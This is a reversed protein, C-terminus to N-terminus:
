GGAAAASSAAHRAAGSGDARRARVVVLDESDAHTLLGRERLMPGRAKMVPGLRGHVRRVEGAELGSESALAITRAPDCISSQVVLLRGGPNLHGPAERCVRDILARGDRGGDLPTSASHRPLEDTQSPVYPPNCVILDFRQTGLAGILDGRGARVRCRNLAANLRTALVARMSIDVALVSRAGALAAAIALVGSGCCLDAVSCGRPDESALADALLWTDSVPRHVGRISVLRVLHCGEWPSRGCFLWRM